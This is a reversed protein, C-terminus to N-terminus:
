AVQGRSFKVPIGGNNLSLGKDFELHTLTALHDDNSLFGVQWGSFATQLVKGFATYLDRLDKNPSVRVGYPPNTVLWGPAAPPQLASIPKQQFEIKEAVGARAANEIAM